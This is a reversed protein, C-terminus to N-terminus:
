HVLSCVIKYIGRQLWRPLYSYFSVWWPPRELRCAIEHVARDADWCRNTLPEWAILANIAAMEPHEQFFKASHSRPIWVLKEECLQELHAAWKSCASCQDDYLIVLNGHFADEELPIWLEKSYVWSFFSPRHYCALWGTRPSCIQNEEMWRQLSRLKAKVRAKWLPGRFRIVLITQMKEPVVEIGIELPHPLEKASWELFSLTLPGDLSSLVPTTMPISRKQLNNGKLYQYLSRFLDRKKVSPALSVATIRNLSPVRQISISGHSFLCESPIKQAM